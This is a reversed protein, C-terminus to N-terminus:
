DNMAKRYFYYVFPIVLLSIILEPVRLLFSVILIAGVGVFVFIVMNTDMSTWKVDEGETLSRSAVQELSSEDGLKPHMSLENGFEEMKKKLPGTALQAISGTLVLRTIEGVEVLQVRMPMGGWGWISSIFSSIEGKFPDQSIIEKGKIEGGIKRFTELCYEFLSSPDVQSYEYKRTIEPVTTGRCENQSYISVEHLVRFVNLIPYRESVIYYRSGM